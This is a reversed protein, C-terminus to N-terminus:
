EPLSKPFHKKRYESPTCHYYKRFTESFYSAGLFGVEFSIELITKDTNQLLEISKYLRFEALYEMPTKNMTKKFITCCTTKGVNGASAIKDLTLKEKYNQNIYLIMKKLISLHYNQSISSKQITLINECLEIWLSLLYKQIKLEAMKDEKVDYVKQICSLINREWQNTNKFHYFPIHRNLLISNIYKEEVSKSTCLIMPHFLICIFTCEEQNESYGFHFQRGNIFIGEKEKLSIIEGNINYMMSGSLVLILEIDDHWHGEATYNLFNSLNAKRIYIPYDMNDYFVRQSHDFNIHFSQM